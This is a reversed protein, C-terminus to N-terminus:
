NIEIPALRLQKRNMARLSKTFSIETKFYNRCWAREQSPVIQQIKQNNQQFVKEVALADYKLLLLYEAMDRETMSQIKDDIEYIDGDSELLKRNEDTINKLKKKYKTTNKNQKYSSWAAYALGSLGVGAVLAAVKQPHTM